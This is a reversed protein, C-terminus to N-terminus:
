MMCVTSLDTVVGASQNTVLHQLFGTFPEEIKVIYLLQDARPEIRAATEVGSVALSAQGNAPVPVTTYQGLLRGDQADYIGLTATAPASGTNTVIVTSPYGANTMRSSHVGTLVRNDATVAQACVSMNSLAGTPGRWLVHQYSGDIETQVALGYTTQGPLSLASEIEAVSFQRQTGPAIAPSAWAGLSQGTAGNYLTVVVPGSTQGSNYFRLYSQPTSPGSAFPVASRLIPLATSTSLGSLACATSMDSVLGSQTNTVFHQYYGEGRFNATVGDDSFAYHYEAANPVLQSRVTSNPAQVSAEITAVSMVQFGNNPIQSGFYFGLLSGTRSDVIRTQAAQAVGSYNHILISSPFRESLVATHVNMARNGLAMMGSECTTLNLLAQADNDYAVHQIYGAMKTEADVSLTYASPREAGPSAMREIEDIGVQLSTGAAVAPSTWRAYFQGTAAHYLSLTATAAFGATNFLRVYSKATSSGTANVSPLRPRLPPASAQPLVTTVLRMPSAAFTNADGPQSLTVHCYGPRRASVSGGAVACIKPTASTIIVPLGASSRPNLAVPPDGINFYTSFNKDVSIAQTTAGGTLSVFESSPPNGFGPCQVPEADRADKAVIADAPTAIGRAIFPAFAADTLTEFYSILHKGRPTQVWVAIDSWTESGGHTGLVQGEAVRDGVRLMPSLAVHFIIFRFDPQAESQIEVQQGLFENTVNSVTGTVPAYINFSPDPAIFYHKMSRCNEIRNRSDRLGQTGFQRQDSYDHGVYSRFKSIRTIKPLDIYVTNVFKPVGLADLDYDARAANGFALPSVILVVAFFRRAACGLRWCRM